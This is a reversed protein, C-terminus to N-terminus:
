RILTVDGKRVVTEGNKFLIEAVYVYVDPPLPQQNLRGDWGLLEDNPLINAAQFVMGGWRDFIKFSKITDINKGDQIFFYDNVRDGNPSFITPIYVRECDEFTVEIDKANSGCINTATVRYVGSKAVPYEVQTSGDQWRYTSQPNKANLILRKGFCVTTDNPFSNALSPTPLFEVRVSDVSFCANRELQVTYTGTKQVILISDRSGDQWKFSAGKSLPSNATLRVMQGLCLQSDRGLDVSLPDGGVKVQITDARTRGCKDAIEVRYDMTTDPSAFPNAINPNSLGITPTWRYTEGGSAKLQVKGGKCIVTDAAGKDLFSTYRLCVEQANSLGGTSATFGWYVNPDGNFITNVIDGTYSLREKCEYFVKLTKTRANWTVGFDHSQCDEVNSNLADFGVPGALTNSTSHNVDGNRIIAIHDFSPDALNNNQYDDMEIGISPKVNLFGLGEGTSGVSTGIPQFGFVIGDAGNADKCGFKIDLLVEFSENLNIKTVNWISGAKTLQDPTLQFCRDNQTASGNLIFQASLITPLGFALFLLYYFKTMTNASLYATFKPTYFGSIKRFVVNLLDIKKITEFFFSGETYVANKSM